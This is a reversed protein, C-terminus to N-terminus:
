SPLWTTSVKCKWIGGPTFYARVRRLKPLNDDCVMEQTDDKTIVENPDSPSRFGYM